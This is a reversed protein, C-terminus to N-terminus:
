LQPSTKPWRIVERMAEKVDSETLSGKSKLRSFAAELRDSLGEFAM